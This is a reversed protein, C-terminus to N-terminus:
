DVIGYDLLLEVVPVLNTRVAYFLANEGDPKIYSQLKDLRDMDRLLEAVQNVYDM